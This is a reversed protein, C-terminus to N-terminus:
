DAFRITYTKGSTLPRPLKLYVIHSWVFQRTPQAWDTPKSKRWVAAPQVGQVFGPDTASQVTYNAANEAADDLLPDGSFTEFAVFGDKRVGILYGIEKGGRKLIMASGDARTTDGAQPLYPEYHGPEIRGAKITIAVVDPAVRSVQTVTPSLPSRKGYKERAEALDRKARAAAATDRQQKEALAAAKQVLDPDQLTIAADVIVDVAGDGGWDGQLQWQTVSSLDIGGKESANPQALTAANKAPITVFDSTPTGPLPFEFSHSGEKTGILLLKLTRLTNKSGARVRLVPSRNASARLDLAVNCGAGGKPTLGNATLVVRRNEIKAKGDWTGYAFLFPADFAALVTPASTPVIRSAATASAVGATVVLAGAATLWCLWAPPLFLNPIKGRNM